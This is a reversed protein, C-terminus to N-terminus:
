EKISLELELFPGAQFGVSRFFSLMELNDKKVMTRIKDIGVALFAQCLRQCLLLGIGQRKFEPHVGISFIWGCPPSGFEWARVEGLIYGVVRKKEAVFGFHKGDSHLFFPLREEWYQRKEGTHFADIEIIAGLDKESVPRIQVEM